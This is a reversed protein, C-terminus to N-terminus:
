GALLSPKGPAGTTPTAWSRRETSLSNTITRTTTTRSSTCTRCCRRRCSRGPKRAERRTPTARAAFFAHLMGDNAPVYLMPTRSANATKFAAYGNDEYSAFPAKVYVPQGNVIDGLVDARTRYLKTLDNGGFGEAGRQGRLFNVLNSGEAAVRQLPTMAFYQSFQSVSANGFYAMETADLGTDTPGTPNGLGDCGQTNWSFNVKNDTAGMHMLYIARSDCAASTRTDLLASASWNPVAALTGSSVIIDTATVDGTWKSTTYTTSYAFNDGAVPEANSVTVGSGSGTKVALSALADGLGTIVSGPDGANFYTGRGNM